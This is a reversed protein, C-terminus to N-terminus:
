RKRRNRGNPAGRAESKSDLAELIPCEGLSAQENCAASIKALTKKIRKLARIKEEVEVRKEDVRSKVDACSAGPDVRLALLERIERLSFGLEKASRVFHLRSVAAEPYQRYGSARRPPEEILGEREYFRITEIGVGTRKAVQGISMSEM